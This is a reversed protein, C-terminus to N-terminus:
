TKTDWYNRSPVSITAAKWCTLPSPIASPTAPLASISVQWDPRGNSLRRCVAERSTTVVSSAPVLVRRCGLPPFCTSRRINRMRMWEKSANPYKRELAPPMYVAGYGAGPDREHIAHVRQLHQKLPTITIHYRMMTVRDKAGKGDRVIIQRQAFDLDKVRLRVCEMLRLGSGYLLQAMLQHTGSLMRIVTRAEERTLVTLLRKPRKARVANITDDLDQKLVERYLFLIANFAQNQTSAAVKSEVALHTLFAEIEPAGMDRPHRKDHFLIFRKIWRVYADETRISYHKRRIADRVQDLLTNPRTTMARGGNNQGPATKSYVAPLAPTADGMHCMM